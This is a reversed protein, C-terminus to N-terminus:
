EGPLTITQERKEGPKMYVQNEVLEGKENYELWTGTKQGMDFVGKYKLTGDSYYGIISDNRVGLVYSGTNWLQGNRYYAKWEGDRKNESISGEKLINGDEYYEKEFVPLKQGDVDDFTRVVQPSGSAFSVVVEENSKVKVKKPGDSSCSAMFVVALVFVIIKRMEIKQKGTLYYDKEKKVRTL